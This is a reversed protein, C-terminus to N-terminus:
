SAQRERLYCPNSDRQPHWIKTKPRRPSSVTSGGLFKPPELRSPGHGASEIQYEWPQLTPPPNASVFRAM